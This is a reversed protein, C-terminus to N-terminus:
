KGLKVLRAALGAGSGGGAADSIDASSAPKLPEPTTSGMDNNPNTAAAMTARIEAEIQARLAAIPDITEAPVERENEDIYIHPHGAAIERDLEEIESAVTTAFKGAVFIAPKGNTFVYNVSPLHAKYIRALSM